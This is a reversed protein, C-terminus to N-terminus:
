ETKVIRPCASQQLRMATLHSRSQNPSFEHGLFSRLVVTFSGFMVLVRSLMVVSRSLMVIRSIVLFRGMVGVRGVGMMHMGMLVAGFSGLSM